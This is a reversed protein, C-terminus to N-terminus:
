RLLLSNLEHRMWTREGANRGCSFKMAEWNWQMGTAIPEAPDGAQFGSFVSRTKKASQQFPLLQMDQFRQIQVTEAEKGQFCGRNSKM